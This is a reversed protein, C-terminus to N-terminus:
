KMNPYYKYKGNKVDVLCRLRHYDELTFESELIRNDQVWTLSGETIQIQYYTKFRITVVEVEYNRFQISTINRPDNQFFDNKLNKDDYVIGIAESLKIPYPYRKDEKNIFEQHKQFAGEMVSLFEEDGGAIKDVLNFTNDSVLDEKLIDIRQFFEENFEEETLKEKDM